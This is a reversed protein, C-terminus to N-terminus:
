KQACTKLHVSLRITFFRNEIKKHEQLKILAYQV